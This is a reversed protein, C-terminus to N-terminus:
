LELYTVPGKIGSLAIRRYQPSNKSICVNKTAVWYYEKEAQSFGECNKTMWKKLWDLKKLVTNVESPFWKRYGDV